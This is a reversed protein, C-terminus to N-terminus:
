QVVRYPRSITSYHYGIQIHYSSPQQQAQVQRQQKM